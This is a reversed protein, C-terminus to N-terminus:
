RVTMFGKTDVFNIKKKYKFTVDTVWSKSILFYAKIRNSILYILKDEERELTIDAYIHEITCEMINKNNEELRYYRLYITIVKERWILIFVAPRLLMGIIPFFQIDENTDTIQFDLFSENLKNKEYPHILKYKSILINKEHSTFINFGFDM